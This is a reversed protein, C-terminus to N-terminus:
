KSGGPIPVWHEQELRVQPPYTILAMFHCSCLECQLCLAKDRQKHPGAKAQSPFDKFPSALFFFFPFFLFGGTHGQLPLSTHRLAKWLEQGKPLLCVGLALGTPVNLFWVTQPGVKCSDGSCSYPM